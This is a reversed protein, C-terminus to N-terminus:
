PKPNSPPAPDDYPEALKEVERLLEPYATLKRVIAWLRPDALLAIGTATARGRSKRPIAGPGKAKLAELRVVHRKTPFLDGAEWAMVTRVDVGVAAALEGLSCSLAERLRQVDAPSM